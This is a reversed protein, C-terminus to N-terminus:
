GDPSSEGPAGFARPLAEVVDTAIMSEEGLRDRALDGARGHLWAGRRAAAFPAEGRALLAGIVGALVDGTGGSALGPNGTENVVCREGEVIRTGAGKRVLVGPVTRAFLACERERTDAPQGLTERLRGFEGDHPTLVRDAAGARLLADARALHWLGDADILHPGNYRSLLSRFLADAGEGRGLGPGIVLADAREIATALHAVGEATAGGEAGEPLPISMAEPCAVDFPLAQTRPLAATVLGAGARLAARACLIVAGSLGRSGGVILLHGQRGKHTDTPRPPLPGIDPPLSSV